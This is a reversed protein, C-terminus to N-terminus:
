VLHLADFGSQLERAFSHTASASRCRSTCCGLEWAWSFTIFYLTLALDCALYLRVPAIEAKYKLHSSDPSNPPKEIM